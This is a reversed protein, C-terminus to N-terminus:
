QNSRSPSRLSIEIVGLDLPERMNPESAPIEVEREGTLWQRHTIATASTQVVVAYKGPEVQDIRFSGDKACQVPRSHFNTFTNEWIPQKRLAMWEEKTKAGLNAMSTFLDYHCENAPEIEGDPNRIQFKGVVPRGSGGLKVVATQGSKVTVREGMGASNIGFHGPPVFDFSFRGHDDTKTDFGSEPGWSPVGDQEAFFVRVPENTVVENYHRLTGEVRGWPKLKVTMNTSFGNTAILAFGSEQVAVLGLARDLDNLYFHGQVDTTCFSWPESALRLDAMPHGFDPNFIRPTPACTLDLGSSAPLPSGDFWTRPSLRYIAVQVNNVPRGRVDVVRGSIGATHNLVSASNKSTAAAEPQDNGQAGTLGAGGLIAVIGAAAWTWYKAVGAGAIARLREQLGAKSEAIGVLGPQMGRQAHNAAVKIITEGYAVNDTASVHSLVLADTALERDARMRAFALWIVPNFWHLIQLFAALWNVELDRRKLHALEHLFTHRLEERSFQEFVGEPLLLWKRWFGYVGPSEIEASEIIRVPQTIKFEKRCEDFLRIVNEDAIPRHQGIRSRFRVNTWVLRSAFLLVGLLWASCTVKPWDIGSSANPNIVVGPPPISPNFRDQRSEKAPTFDTSPTADLNSIPPRPNTDVARTLQWADVRSNALDTKALNFISFGSPPVVPMLLRAILLLWLGYRWAPALRRRLLWQALLILGVLVATQWTTQLIWRFVEEVWHILNPM